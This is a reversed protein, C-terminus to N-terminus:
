RSSLPPHRPPNGRLRSSLRCQSFGEYHSCNKESFKYLMWSTKSHSALNAWRIRQAGLGRGCLRPCHYSDIRERQSDQLSGKAMKFARRELHAPWHLASDGGLCQRALSRQLQSEKNGWPREGLKKFWLKDPPYPIYNSVCKWKGITSPHSLSIFFISFLLLYNKGM